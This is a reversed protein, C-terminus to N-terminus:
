LMFRTFGHLTDYFHVCATLFKEVKIIALFFIDSVYKKLGHSNYKLLFLNFSCNSINILVAPIKITIVRHNLIEWFNSVM